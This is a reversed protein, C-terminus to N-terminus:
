RGMIGMRRLVELVARAGRRPTFGAVHEKARRGMEATREPNSVCATMRNALAKRDGAPFVFGTDGDRILDPGCGVRDSVIAPRGYQMAENVVLGWTEGEDSPLVLVDAAAYARGIESQNLFGAFRILLAEEDVREKMEELMEGSGAVLGAVAKGEFRRCVEAIAEVFDLPRKKKQVKGAFLFCTSSEPVGWERRHDDRKPLDEAAKRGFFDTDVFYGGDVIRDPAVGNTEYFARNAKGIGVFGDCCAFLARHGIRKWAVRRRMVNSEGRMVIPIRLALSASIARLLFPDHWGTVLVADPRVEELWSSISAPRKRAISSRHETGGLITWRYGELLPVDWQFAGGFGAAQEVADPIRAFCVQLDLGDAVMARFWPAHYQIPHTAFVALRLRTRNTAGGVEGRVM